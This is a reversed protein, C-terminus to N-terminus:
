ARTSTAAAGPSGPAARSETRPRPARTRRPRTAPRKERPDRAPSPATPPRRARARRPCSRRARRPCARCAAHHRPPARSARAARPVSAHPPRPARGPRARTPPPRPPSWARSTEHHRGPPARHTRPSHRTPLARPRTRSGPGRRRARRASRLPSGSRRRGEPPRAGRRDELPAERGARRPEALRGNSGHGPDSGPRPRRPRTRRETHSSWRWESPMPCIGARVPNYALYRGLEALHEEDEILRSHFRGQFLHGSFGHRENFCTAYTGSLWQMGRSLNPQPTELVLHVHNPMLCYELIRWGLRWAVRRLLTRYLSYDTEDHFIAQQRNGRATVHYTGGALQIRPPRPMSGVTRRPTVCRASRRVRPVFAMASVAMAPTQGRVRGSCGRRNVRLAFARCCSSKRAQIPM